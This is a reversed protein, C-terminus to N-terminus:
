FENEELFSGATDKFFSFMTQDKDPLTVVTLFFRKGPIPTVASAM